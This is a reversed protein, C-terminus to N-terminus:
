TTSTARTTQAAGTPHGVGSGKEAGGGSPPPPPPTLVGPERAVVKSPERSRNSAPQLEVSLVNSRPANTSPAGWDEEMLVFKRRKSKRSSGPPEERRTKEGRLRVDTSRVAMATRRREKDRDRTRGQEWSQQERDLEEALQEEEKRIYELSTNSM